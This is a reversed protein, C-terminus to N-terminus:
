LEYLRVRDEYEAVPETKPIVQHYEKFFASGFGGFMKMIGLEYESHAYCACPDYIVGGPQEDESSGSGTISGHGANGSWLDGHVVVHVIWEGHGNRDYGLHGDGLLAPVVTFATNEVLNRLTQDKGNQRESLELIPMLREHAYFDAWSGNFSNVQKSDGCFTPVPFGFKRQGTNPCVPAPTSHLKGLRQALSTKKGGTMGYGGSLNLYQTVLFWGKDSNEDLRGSALPRPCLGPVATAIAKLSEFEGHFMEESAKGHSAFKIFYRREEEGGRDDTSPVRARISGTSTFGSGFSQSISTKSPDIPLSLARLVTEPVPAM